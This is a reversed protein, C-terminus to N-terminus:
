VERKPSNGLSAALRECFNYSIGLRHKHVHDFHKRHLQLGCQPKESFLTLSIIEVPSRTLTHFKLHLITYIPANKLAETDM